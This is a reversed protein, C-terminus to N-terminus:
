RRVRELQEPNASSGRYVALHYEDAFALLGLQRGEVQFRTLLGEWRESLSLPLLPTERSRLVLWTDQEDIVMIAPVLSFDLGDDAVSLIPVLDFPISPPSSHPHTHLSLALREKRPYFRIRKTSANPSGIFPKKFSMAGFLNVMFLTSSELRVMGGEQTAKAISIVCSLQSEHIGWVEQTEAYKKSFFRKLRDMPTPHLARLLRSRAEQPTITSNLTIQLLEQMKAAIFPPVLLQDPFDELTPVEGWAMRATLLGLDPFERRSLEQGREM